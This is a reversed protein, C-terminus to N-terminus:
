SKTALTIQIGAPDSLSLRGQGTAVEVNQRALRERVAALEEAGGAEIAFEVLGTSGPRRPGSRASRWTNAAVHHHYGGSGFWLAGPRHHTVALGLGETYFTKARGVDDVRLHIHGISFGDPVKSTPAGAARGAELLDDIDLPDTTMVYEGDPELRWETRPRDSYVEIGNGEPDDLYLAESVKHNSAGSFPIRRAAAGALWRGLDERSPMLFATHFLGPERAPDRPASPRGELVLLVRGGAGLEVREPASSLRQLGLGDEYFRSLAALDRAALTVSSIHLPADTAVQSSATM